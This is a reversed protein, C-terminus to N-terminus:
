KLLSPLWTSLAPIYTVLLVNILLFAILFLAPRVLKEFPVKAIESVIFLNVGVPPTIMGCALNLILIVGFHIPDIGFSIAAPLLIPTMIIIASFAELFMGLILLLLNLLLLFLIQNDTVGLLFEAVKHPVQNITLVYAFISAFGVIIMIIATSMASQMIVKHVDKLKIEKYVFVGLIFSYIVALVAVETPSFYGLYIGGFILVPLLLALISEKFAIFIEKFWQKKSVIIKRKDIGAKRVYLYNALILFVGVLLGPIITALFMGGISTGSVMAYMIIVISPPIVAGMEGAAASLAAAFNRAYGKKEMNPIMISGIAATTASSSGSITSFITTTLVTSTGVGGTVGKVLVSAFNVLRKAIGGSGMLNGALIFFPIALLTFGSLGEFVKQPITTLSYSELLLALLSSGGLAIAVPASLFLLLFFAIFVTTIM